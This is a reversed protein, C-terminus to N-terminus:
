GVCCANRPPGLELHLLIAAVVPPDTLFALIKMEGGCSPKEMLMSPTSFEKAGKRTQWGFM